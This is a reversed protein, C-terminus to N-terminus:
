GLSFFFFFLFNQKQFLNLDALRHGFRTRGFLDCFRRFFFLFFLGVFQAFIKEGGDAHRSASFVVSRVIGTQLRGDISASLVSTRYRLFFFVLRTKPLASV